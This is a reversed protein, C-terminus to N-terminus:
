VFAELLKSLDGLLDSEKETLQVNLNKKAGLEKILIKIQSSFGSLKSRESLETVTLLPETLFSLIEEEHLTANTFIKALDKFDSARYMVNDSIKKFLIKVIDDIEYQKIKRLKPLMQMFSIRQYEKMNYESMLELYEMRMDRLETFHFLHVQSIGLLDAIEKKTANKYETKIKHIANAKEMPKWSRRNNQMEYRRTEFEGDSMKPYIRCPATELGLEKACAFRRHGDMILYRGQEIESVKIPDEIGYHLISKMLRDYDGGTELGFAKRPQNPDGEIVDLPLELFKFPRPKFSSILSKIDNENM